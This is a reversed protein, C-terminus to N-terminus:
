DPRVRALPRLLPLERILAAAALAPRDRRVERVLLALGLAPLFRLAASLLFLSQLRHGCLPPLHEALWGGSFTFLATTVGVTAFLYSFCRVRRPPTVAEMVYNTSALDLGGWAIGGIAWALIILTLRPTGLYFLPCVAVLLGCTRMVLANGWRDALRGWFRLFVLRCGLGLSPLLVLTSLDFGLRFGGGIGAAALARAILACLDNALGDVPLGQLDRLFYVQFFPGTLSSGATLVALCVAFNAFNSRGVRGLFQGYGFDREPPRVDAAPEYQRSVFASAALRSLAALAFLGAFAPWPPAAGPGWVGRLVHAVVLGSLAYIGCMWVSRWSFYRGRGSRPVLESMWSSWPGDAVSGAASYASYALVALGVALAVAALPLPSPSGGPGLVRRLLAPSAAFGAVAFVLCAAAQLRACRVVLARRSPAAATLRPALLRALASLLAALGALLAVARNGAGLALIAAIAFNDVAAGTFSSLAGDAFSNRLAGRLRGYAPKLADSRGPGSRV